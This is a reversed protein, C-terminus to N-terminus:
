TCSSTNRSYKQHGYQMTDRKYYICTYHINYIYIQFYYLRVVRTEIVRIENLKHIKLTM